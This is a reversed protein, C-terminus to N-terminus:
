IRESVDGNLRYQPFLNLPKVVKSKVIYKRAGLLTLGAGVMCDFETWESEFDFDNLQNLLRNFYCKGMYPEKGEEKIFGVKDIVHSEMAYILAQRAERGSMPIGFDDEMNRSSLTQTEEPRRMLYNEYGHRKFFNICGIKNSEILIEHGYFVSQMLIDEFMSDSTQPRNVYECVFIGSDYPVMPDFKRLVYSAADSKRDDSTTDNDYPDLGACSLDTNGPAKKGNKFVSKNRLENPPLWSLLWRGNEDPNWGVAGFRVGGVWYFNGRVLPNHAYTNNHELQEDIKQTDYVAKKTDSVWMDKEELPFKRKESNLDAGKLAKRKNLFYNKTKERDSYGYDDVFSEGNMIELYGYDAPKFLRYLGNKTFGNDDRADEASVDAKNWVKKCEKGGKKVMEEVTTTAIIKGRGYEGRGARLCERLTNHREDVSCEVTKGIEDTFVRHLNQGDYAAVGSSEYDIFSGLVDSDEKDQSKSDRKAPASFELIKAPSSAGVDIPRFFSPLKQWSYVLKKFIKKADPETKSQIGAQINYRRSIPEYLMCIAKYTKGEGRHTIYILGDCKTDDECMKWVYFFDRDCDLFMPYGTNIKWWTIYFYHVGTIYEVNGNNYFWFGNLRRDWERAIFAKRDEPKWSKFDKPLETRIFKQKNAPLNYGSIDKAAPPEPLMVTHQGIVRERVFDKPKQIM